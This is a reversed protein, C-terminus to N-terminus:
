KFYVKKGNQIYIGKTPNLVKRGQLDYCDENCNGEEIIDEIDSPTEYGELAVLELTWSAAYSETGLGVYSSSAVRVYRDDSKLVIANKEADYVVTLPKNEETVYLNNANKDAKQSIYGKYECNYVKYENVRGTPVFAWLARDDVDETLALRDKNAATTSESIGLSEGSENEILRYWAVVEDKTSIPSTVVYTGDIKNLLERFSALYSKHKAVNDVDEVVKLYLNYLDVVYSELNRDKVVVTNNFINMTNLSDVNLVEAIVIRSEDLAYELEQKYFAASNDEYVYAYWIAEADSPQMGKVMPQEKGDVKAYQGSVGIGLPEGDSLKEFYLNGDDTYNIRFRAANNTGPIDAYVIDNYVFDKVYNGDACKLYYVGTEGAYEISWRSAAKSDSTSSSAVVGLFTNTMTRDSTKSYINVEMGEEFMVRTGETSILRKCENDLMISWEAYSHKSTDKKDYAAKAENYL